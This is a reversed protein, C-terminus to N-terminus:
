RMVWEEEVRTPTARPQTIADGPIVYTVALTERLLFNRPNDASEEGSPDFARNFVKEIEGSLGAIHLTFRNVDPDPPVFAIASTRAHDKGLLLPGLMESPYVFFPYAKKHRAKIADYVVPNINDGGEIVELKDTVIDFTPYFPVERDTNNTVTYLVYWYTRESKEGPLRVSIRQPDHYDIDLRWSEGDPEPRPLAEVAPLGVGALVAPVLIKRV